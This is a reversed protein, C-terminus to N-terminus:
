FLSGNIPPDGPAPGDTAAADVVPAASPDLVIDTIVGDFGRVKAGTADRAALTFAGVSVQSV